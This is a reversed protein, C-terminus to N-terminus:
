MELIGDNQSPILMALVWEAGCTDCTRGWVDTPGVCTSPALPACHMKKRLLLRMALVAVPPPIFAYFSTRTLVPSKTPRPFGRPSASNPAASRIMFRSHASSRGFGMSLVPSIPGGMLGRYAFLLCTTDSRYRMQRAIRPVPRGTKLSAMYYNLM